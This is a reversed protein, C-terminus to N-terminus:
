AVRSIEPLVGVGGDGEAVMEIYTADAYLLTWPCSLLLKVM